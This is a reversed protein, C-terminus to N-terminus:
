WCCPLHVALLPQGGLLVVVEIGHSVSAYPLSDNKEALVIVLWSYLKSQLSVYSLKERLPWCAFLHEIQM